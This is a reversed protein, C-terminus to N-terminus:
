RCRQDVEDVFGAVASPDARAALNQHACFPTRTVRHQAHKVGNRTATSTNISTSASTNASFRCGSRNKATRHCNLGTTPAAPLASSPLHASRVFTSDALATPYEPAQTKAPHRHRHLVAAETRAAPSVPALLSTDSAQM